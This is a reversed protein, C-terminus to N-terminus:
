YHRQTLYQRHYGDSQPPSHTHHFDVFQSQGAPPNNFDQRDLYPPRQQYQTNFEPQQQMQMMTNQVGYSNQQQQQHHAAQSQNHNQAYPSDHEGASEMAQQQALKWQPLLRNQQRQQGAAEAKRLEPMPNEGIITPDIPVMAVHLGSNQTLFYYLRAMIDVPTRTNKAAIMAAVEADKIPFRVKRSQFLKKLIRWNHQKTNLSIGDELQALPKTVMIHGEFAREVMKGIIYGNSFFRRWTTLIPKKSLNKLRSKPLDFKEIWKVLEKAAKERRLFEEDEDLNKYKQVSYKGPAIRKAVNKGTSLKDRVEALHQSARRGYRAAEKQTKKQQQYPASTGHEATSINKSQMPQGHKEEHTRNYAVSEDNTTYDLTNAVEDGDDSAATTPLSGVGVMNEAYSAKVQNHAFCSADELDFGGVTERLFEAVHDFQSIDEADVDDHYGSPLSHLMGREKLTKLLSEQPLIEASKSVGEEASVFLMQCDCHLARDMEVKQALTNPFGYLLSSQQLDPDIWSVLVSSILKAHVKEGLLACRLIKQGVETKNTIELAVLSEVDVFPTGSNVALQEWMSSDFATCESAAIMIDLSPVIPSAAVTACDDESAEDIKLRQAEENLTAKREADKLMQRCKANEAESEMVRQLASAAEDAAEEAIKTAADAREKAANKEELASRLKAELSEVNKKMALCEEEHRAAKERFGKMTSEQERNKEELANVLKAGQLKTFDIQKQLAENEERLKSSERQYVTNALTHKLTALENTKLGRRIEEDLIAKRKEFRSETDKVKMDMDRKALSLDQRVKQLDTEARKRMSREDNVIEESRALKRTLIEIEKQKEVVQANLRKIKDHEVNALRNEPHFNAPAVKSASTMALEAEQARKEATNARKKEQALDNKTKALLKSLRQLSAELGKVKDEMKRLAARLRLITGEARLGLWTGRGGAGTEFLVGSKRNEEYNAPFYVNTMKFVVDGSGPWDSPIENPLGSNSVVHSVKSCVFSALAATCFRDTQTDPDAGHNKLVKLVKRKGLFSAIMVANDENPLAGHAVLARAIDANGVVAAARMPTLALEGVDSYRCASLLFCFSVMSLFIFLPSALALGYGRYNGTGLWLFLVFIAFPIMCMRFHSNMTIWRPKKGPFSVLKDIDLLAEGTEDPPGEVSLHRMVEEANNAQVSTFLAHNSKMHLVRKRGDRRKEANGGSAAYQLAMEKETMVIGLAAKYQAIESAYKTPPDCRVRAGQLNTVTDKIKELNGWRFTQGCGGAKIAKRLDGHAKDGCMMIDCGDNKIIFMNCNPCKKGLKKMTEITKAEELASSASDKAEPCKHTDMEDAPILSHCRLCVGAGCPCREPRPRVGDGKLVFIPDDDVLFNGCKAPCAFFLEGDDGKQNKMFRFQFERDIVGQRELYTLAKDDIRGYRPQEGSPAMGQCVPCYVPFKGGNLSTQLHLKICGECFFHTCGTSIGYKPPDGWCISCVEDDGASPVRLSSIDMGLMAAAKGTGACVWCRENQSLSASSSPSEEITDSGQSGLSKEIVRLASPTITAVNIEEEEDDMDKSEQKSDDHGYVNKVAFSSLGTGACAFCSPEKGDSLVEKLMLNQLEFQLQNPRVMMEVTTEDVSPQRVIKLSGRPAPM